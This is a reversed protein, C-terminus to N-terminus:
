HANGAQLWGIYDAAAPETDYEPQYGTDERVRTIDLYTHPSASGIPLDVKFDPVVKKIASIIEDNATARGSAVNYTRHNVRDMVRLLAIARGTDKVYSLDLADDAHVPILIRSLDPQTGAAAAHILAPAGFFPVEHGLPGWTGSIRLNVIEIGTTKALQEGLLENIKKYSPIPHPSSLLVPVDEGLPGEVPLGAYVRITSAIGIRNVGGM